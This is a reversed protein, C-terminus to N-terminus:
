RRVVTKGINTQCVLKRENTHVNYYLNKPKDISKHSFKTFIKVNIRKKQTRKCTLSLIQCFLLSKDNKEM